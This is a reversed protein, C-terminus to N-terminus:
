FGWSNFDIRVDESYDQLVTFTDNQPTVLESGDSEFVIDELNHVGYTNRATMRELPFSMGRPFRGM